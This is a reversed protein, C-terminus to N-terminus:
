GKELKPSKSTPSNKNEEEEQKKNPSEKKSDDIKISERKTVEKPPM